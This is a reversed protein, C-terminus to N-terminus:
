VCFEKKLQEVWAKIREGTLNLQNDEDLALRVFKGDRVAKSETFDYGDRSWYGVTTSGLGSIKEELIGMADQFNDAYGVQGGTSFYAVKKRNFDIDDLHSFYSDSDSQLQGINWTPCAIILNEYEEFDSNDVDTINHLTVVDEGFEQQIIEGIETKGITSGYFLGINIM